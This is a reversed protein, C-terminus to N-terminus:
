EYFGDVLVVPFEGAIMDISLKRKPSLRFLDQLNPM